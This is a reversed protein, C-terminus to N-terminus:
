RYVAAMLCSWQWKDCRVDWMDVHQCQWPLLYVYLASMVLTDCWWQKEEKRKEVYKYLNWYIIGVCVSVGIFRDVDLTPKKREYLSLKSFTMLVDAENWHLSIKMDKEEEGREREEGRAPITQPRKLLQTYKSWM